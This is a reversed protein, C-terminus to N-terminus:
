EIQELQVSSLRIGLVLAEQHLQGYADVWLCVIIFFYKYARYFQETVKGPVGFLLLMPLKSLPHVSNFSRDLLVLRGYLQSHCPETQQAVVFPFHYNAEVWRKQFLYHM